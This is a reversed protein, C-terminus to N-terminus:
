SVQQVWRRRQVDTHSCSCSQISINAKGRAASQATDGLGTTVMHVHVRPAGAMFDPSSDM